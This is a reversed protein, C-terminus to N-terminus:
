VQHNAVLKLCCLRLCYWLLRSRWGEDLVGGTLLAWLISRARTFTGDLHLVHGNVRHLRGFESVFLYAQGSRELGPSHQIMKCELVSGERCAKNHVEAPCCILVVIHADCYCAYQMQMVM